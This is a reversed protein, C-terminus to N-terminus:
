NRERFHTQSSEGTRPLEVNIKYNDFYASDSMSIYSIQRHFSTSYNLKFIIKELM